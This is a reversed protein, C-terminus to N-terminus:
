SVSKLLSDTLLEIAKEISDIRDPMYKQKEAESWTDPLYSKLFNRDALKGIPIAYFLVRPHGNTGILAQHLRKRTDELLRMDDDDPMGDTLMWIWPVYSAVQASKYIQRRQEALELALLIAENMATGGKAKLQPITLQGANQFNRVIKVKDSFTIVCIDVLNKTAADEKLVQEFHNLWKNLQNIPRSDPTDDWSSGEMSHSIDILFVCAQHISNPNGVPKKPLRDALFRLVDDLYSMSMEVQKQPLMKPVGDRPSHAEGRTNRLSRIVHCKRTIEADDVWKIFDSRQGDKDYMLDYDSAYQSKPNYFLKEEWDPHLDYLLYIMQMLANFCHNLINRYDDQTPRDQDYLQKAKTCHDLAQGIHGTTSQLQLLYDFTMM